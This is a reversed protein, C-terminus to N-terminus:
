NPQTPPTGATRVALPWAFRHVLWFTLGAVAVAILSVWPDDVAFRCVLSSAALSSFLSVTVGTQEFESRIRAGILLAVLGAGLFLLALPLSLSAFQLIGVGLVSSFLGVVLVSIGLFPKM